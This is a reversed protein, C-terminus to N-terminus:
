VPPIMLPCGELLKGRFRSSVGFAHMVMKRGFGQVGNSLAVLAMVIYADRCDDELHVQINIEM